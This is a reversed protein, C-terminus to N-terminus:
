NYRPSIAYLKIKTEHENLLLCLTLTGAATKTGM